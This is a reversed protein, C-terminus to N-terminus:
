IISRICSACARSVYVDSLMRVTQTDPLIDLVSWLIAEKTADEPEQWALSIFIPQNAEGSPKRAPANSSATSAPVSPGTGAAAQDTAYRLGALAAAAGEQGAESNSEGKMPTVPSSVPVDLKEAIAGLLSELRDM